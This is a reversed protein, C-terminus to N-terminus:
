SELVEWYNQIKNSDKILLKNRQFEMLNKTQFEQILRNVSSKSASLLQCMDKKTMPIRLQKSDNVGFKEILEKISELMREKVPTNVLKGARSEFEDAKRSVMGLLNLRFLPQEDSIKEIIDKSIYIAKVPQVVEFTQPGDFLDLVRDVVISDSKGFYKIIREDGNVDIVKWKVVGETFIIIGSQCDFHSFLEEDCYIEEYRVLESIESVLKNDINNFLLNESIYKETGKLNSM